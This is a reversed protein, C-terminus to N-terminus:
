DQNQKLEKIEKTLKNIQKFASQRVDHMQQDVDKPDLWTTEFIELQEKLKDIEEDKEDLFEQDVQYEERGADYGQQFANEKQEKLENNEQELKKIRIDQNKIYTIVDEFGAILTPNQTNNM